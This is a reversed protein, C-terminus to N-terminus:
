SMLFSQSFVFVCVCVCVCVCLFERKLENEIQADMDNCKPITSCLFHAHPNADEISTTTLFTPDCIRASQFLNMAQRLPADDNDFKEQFYSLATSVCTKSYQEFQAATVHPHSKM